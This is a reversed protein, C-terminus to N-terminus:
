KLSLSLSLSFFLSSSLPLAQFNSFSVEFVASRQRYRDFFRFAQFLKRAKPNREFSRAESGPRIVQVSSDPSAWKAILWRIACVSCQRSINPIRYRKNASANHGNSLQLWVFRIATMRLWEFDNSKDLSLFGIDELQNAALQYTGSRPWFDQKRDGDDNERIVMQNWHM